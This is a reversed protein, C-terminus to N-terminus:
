GLNKLEADEDAAIGSLPAEIRYSFGSAAFEVQPKMASGAGLPQHLLTHGFGRRAPVRAPPGGTERWTFVLTPIGDRRVLTWAVIVVGEDGSLSGYKIANTALEHVILAFTQAIQPQLKVDPGHIIARAGFPALESIVLEGLDAGSWGSNLLFTHARALAHLRKTFVERGESIPRDDSLSRNAISQVIALTNKVRHSLEKTLLAMQSNADAMDIHRVALSAALAGVFLSLALGIALGGRARDSKMREEFQPLSAFRFMWQRGNQDFTSAAHFHGGSGNGGPSSDFMIEAHGDQTSDFLQVRMLRRVEGLSGATLGDVFDGIRLPTYVFGMVAARRAQESAPTDAGRYVPAYLLVGAQNGSSAEQVLAVNGTASILGSDRARNMAAKRSPDSLMDYGIVRESGLDHPELLITVCYEDRGGAPHVQYRPGYSRRMVAEHASLAEGSVMVAYGVGRTGPYRKALELADVFFRWDDKTVVAHTHFLGVGARLVQEYVTMRRELEAVLRRTQAEFAAEAAVRENRRAFDWFLLTAALSLSVLLWVPRMERRAGIARWRAWSTNNQMPRNDSGMPAWHVASCFTEAPRYM